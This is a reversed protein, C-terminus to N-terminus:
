AAVVAASAARVFAAVLEASKRGPATEVGSSVDVLAPRTRRVAEAVRDPTLGGALGFPRGLPQEELLAWDFAVGTGGDRGPVAADLLVLDAASARARAIAAPGDVKLGHIVPLGSAARAAEPEADGHVQLHTMGALRAVAAMEEPAAGVFVGVRAVGDPVAALVRAATDADVQRPSGSALVVGIGWAGLRACAAAERPVTLGCIKVRVPGGDPWM